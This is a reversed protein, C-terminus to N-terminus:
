LQMEKAIEIMNKLFREYYNWLVLDSFSARHKELMESERAADFVPLKNEKKLSGIKKVIEMRKIFLEKMKDDIQDLQDRYQKLMM